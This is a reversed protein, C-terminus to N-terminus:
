QWDTRASRKLRQLHSKNQMKMSWGAIGVDDSSFCGSRLGPAIWWGCKVTSQRTKLSRQYDRCGRGTQRFGNPQGPALTGVFPGAIMISGSRHSLTRPLTLPVITRPPLSRMEELRNSSKDPTQHQDLARDFIPFLFGGKKGM